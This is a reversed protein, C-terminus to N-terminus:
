TGPTKHTGMDKDRLITFFKQYQVKLGLWKKTINTVQKVQEQQCNTKKEDAVNAELSAFCENQLSRNQILWVGDLRTLGEIGEDASHASGATHDGGVKCNALLGGNTLFYIQGVEDVFSM